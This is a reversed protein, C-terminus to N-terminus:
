LTRCPVEMQFVGPPCSENAVGFIHLVDVVEKEVRAVEEGKLVIAVHVESSYNMRDWHVPIPIIKETQGERWEIVQDRVEDIM